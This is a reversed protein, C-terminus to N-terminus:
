IFRKRGIFYLQAVAKGLTQDLPGKNWNYGDCEVGFEILDVGMGGLVPVLDLEVNWHNEREVMTRTIRSSFSHKHDGNYISPWQCKEYLEYDPVVVYLHKGPKLVRRWHSLAEAVDRMHELCHSSYVFDFSNDPVGELLQADGDFVDWARVKGSPVVLPSDGSGIDIGNGRLYYAYHGSILRNKECKATENM